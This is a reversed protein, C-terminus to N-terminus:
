LDQSFVVYRMRCTCLAPVTKKRNYPYPNSEMHRRSLYPFHYYSLYYAYTLPWTFQLRNFGFDSSVETVFSNCNDSNFISTKRSTVTFIKRLKPPVSGESVENATM